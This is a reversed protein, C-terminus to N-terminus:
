SRDTPRARDRGMATLTDSRETTLWTAVDVLKMNTNQSADVLLAFAAVADLDFREMLIGKAQGILDRSTLALNLSEVRKAGALAIAAQAAFLGGLHHADADFADPHAAYLNLAGASGHDAFLQFSLLSGMGREVAAAAFRPWRQERTFDDIQVMAETRIAELCPGEGLETQLEDLEAVAPSTPVHPRVVKDRELLSVGGAIVPPVAAVAGAIIRELAPEVDNDRDRRALLDHAATTLAAVLDDKSRLSDANDPRTM